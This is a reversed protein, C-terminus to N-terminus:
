EYLPAKNEDEPQQNLPIVIVISEEIKAKIDDKHVGMNIQEEIDLAFRKRQHATVLSVMKQINKPSPQTKNLFRDILFQSLPFGFRHNTLILKKAAATFPYNTVTFSGEDISKSGEGIANMCTIENDGEDLLCARRTGCTVSTIIKDAPNIHVATALLTNKLPNIPETEKWAQVLAKKITTHNTTKRLLPILTAAFKEGLATAVIGQKAQNPYSKRMSTHEFTTCNLEAYKEMEGISEVMIYVRNKADCCHYVDNVLEEANNDHLFNPLRLMANGLPARYERGPIKICIPDHVIIPHLTAIHYPPPLDDEEQHANPRHTVCRRKPQYECAEEKGSNSSESAHATLAASIFILFAFIHLAFLRNM